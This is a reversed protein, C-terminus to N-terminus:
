LSSTLGALLSARTMQVACRSMSTKMETKELWLSGIPMPVYVSVTVWRLPGGGGSGSGGAGRAVSVSSLLKLTPSLLITVMM